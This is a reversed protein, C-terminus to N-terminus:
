HFSVAGGDPMKKAMELAKERHQVFDAAVKRSIATGITGECDSFNILEIFPVAKAEFGFTPDGVKDWLAKASNAGAVRALWGRWDNYGSYSGVRFVFKEAFAYVKRPEGDFEDCRGPFDTNVYIVTENPYDYNGDDPYDRIPELRSYASIDLGM